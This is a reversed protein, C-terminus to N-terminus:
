PASTSWSWSWGSDRLPRVPYGLFGVTIPAPTMAMIHERAMAYAGATFGLMEQSQPVRTLHVSPGRTVQRLRLAQRGEM